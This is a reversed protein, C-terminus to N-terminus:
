GANVGWPAPAVSAKAADKDVAQPSDISSGLSRGASFM